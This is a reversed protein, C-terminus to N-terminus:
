TPLRAQSGQCLVRWQWQRRSCIPAARRGPTKHPARVPSPRRGPAGPVLFGAPTPTSQRDAEARQSNSSLVPQYPSRSTPGAPAHLAGAVDGSQLRGRHRARCDHVVGAVDGSGARARHQARKFRKGKGLRKKGLQPPSSWMRPAQGRTRDCNVGIVPRVAGLNEPACRTHLQGSRGRRARASTSAGRQRRLCAPCKTLLESVGPRPAGGGRGGTRVLYPAVGGRMGAWRWLGGLGEPAERLERGPHM